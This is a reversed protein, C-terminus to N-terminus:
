RGYDLYKSLVIFLEDKFRDSLKIVDDFNSIKKRDVDEKVLLIISVDPNFKKILEVYDILINEYLNDEVLIVDIKNRIISYIIRADLPL